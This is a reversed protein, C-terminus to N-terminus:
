FRRRQNGNSRRRCLVGIGQIMCAALVTAGSVLVWSLRRKEIIQYLIGHIVTLAFAAYAWRQLSKWRPTGLRRLSLDNSIIVLILFLLAALLGTYNAAGFNSDQIRLPHLHKFFYMWMRGKLHVTLGVGTHLLALFGAWIGVDRRLDFSVPNPKRRLLNWPGLWLSAALFFLAAYASGMSLRHRPDPPPTLFYVATVIAFALVALSAHRWLRGRWYQTKLGAM